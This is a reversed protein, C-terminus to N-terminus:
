WFFPASFFETPTQGTFLKFDKYFHPLDFYGADLVVGALNEGIPKQEIISKMRVISSYQKPTTGVIRRFRKEFADQSVFLTNALQKIKINGREHHIKQLATLILRDRDQRFLKSLLFREVMAVRQHNNEAGALQEEIFSIQDQGIFNDLSVSEEFLEYMPQKFFASTGTASFLIIFTSTDKLYNILRVSRMLGSIASAPVKSLKNDTVYNVQGRYQFAIAMSTDPLVRNVVEAHSEIILYAKIFSRLSETPLCETINM